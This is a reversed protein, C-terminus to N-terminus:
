GAEAEVPRDSLVSLTFSGLSGPQYTSVIIAYGEQSPRLRCEHMTVGAVYAAYPGSSGIEEGLNGETISFVAVKIPMNSPEAVLRLRLTCATRVKLRFKPNDLSTSGSASGGANHAEWAGKFTKVFRGADDQPILSAEIVHTSQVKLSFSATKGSEYCSPVFVYHGPQLRECQLSAISHSYAGGSSDAV